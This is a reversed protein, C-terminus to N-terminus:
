RNIDNDSLVHVAICIGDVYSLIIAVMNRQNIPRITARVQM